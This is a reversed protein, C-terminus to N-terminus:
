DTTDYREKNVDIYNEVLGVQEDSIAGTEIWPVTRENRQIVRYINIGVDVATDRALEALAYNIAEDSKRAENLVVSVFAIVASENERLLDHAYATGHESLAFEPDDNPEAPPDIAVLGDRYAEELGNMLDSDTM